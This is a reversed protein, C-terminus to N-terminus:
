QLEVPLRCALIVIINNNRYTSLLCNEINFLFNKHSHSHPAYSFITIHQHVTNSCQVHLFWYSHTRTGKCLGIYNVNHCHFYSRCSPHYNCLYINLFLSKTQTAIAIAHKRIQNKKRKSSIQTKKTILTALQNVQSASTHRKEM